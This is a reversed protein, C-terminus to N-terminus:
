RGLIKKKGKQTQIDWFLLKGNYNVSCSVIYDNSDTWNEDIIKTYNLLKEVVEYPLPNYIEDFINKDVKLGFKELKRLRIEKDQQFKENSSIEINVYKWWENYVGLEIPYRFYIYQHPTINGRNLDSVDFGKGVSEIIGYDKDHDIMINIGYINKTRDIPQLLWMQTNDVQNKRLVEMDILMKNGGKIPNNNSKLYQYRVTCYDSKLVEKVIELKEKTLEEKDDFLVSDFIPCGISALFQYTTIKENESNKYTDNPLVIM